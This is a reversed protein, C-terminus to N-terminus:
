RYAFMVWVSECLLEVTREWVAVYSHNSFLFVHIGVMVACFYECSTVDIDV